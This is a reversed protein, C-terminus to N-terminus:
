AALLNRRRLRSFAGEIVTQLLPEAYRSIAFATGALLVVAPVPLLVAPIAGLRGLKVIIAIMMNQHILYLPYSIAGFFQLFRNELLRQISASTVSVAFLAATLIAALTLGLDFGGVQLASMFALGTGLQFWRPAREQTYVYFAAGSAFWGFCQLSLTHALILVDELAAISHARNIVEVAFTFTFVAILSAMLARRGRWYYVLAALLYFKVEVYLSWFAGELVVPRHGIVHGWWVPEIFTLGPLLSDWGPAGGPREVLFGATAFIIISCILMAPFLRLWRRYLFELRTRYKELTMLIVFGSIMFFLEVGLSGFKFLWVDAYRHGYPVVDPWRSFAHFLIVLLIALGRHGDLYKIRHKM